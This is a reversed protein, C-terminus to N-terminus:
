LGCPPALHGPLTTVANYMLNLPAARREDSGATGKTKSYFPGVYQGLFKYRARRGTEMKQFGLEVARCLRKEFTKEM